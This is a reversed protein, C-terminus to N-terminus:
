AVTSLPRLRGIFRVNGSITDLTNDTDVIAFVMCIGCKLIVDQRALVSGHSGVEYAAIKRDVIAHIWSAM